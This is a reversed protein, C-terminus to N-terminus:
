VGSWAKGSRAGAALETVHVLVREVVVGTAREVYEKVATQADRSLQAIDVDPLVQMRVLILIGEQGQRIRSDFSEAGKLQSGRRNALQRLTDYSIRIQGHDGTLAVYEATQMRSLRYFLFRLSLLAAVAGVVIAVMNYPVTLLETSVWTVSIVNAGVLALVVGVVLGIVSFLFLLLRDLLSM